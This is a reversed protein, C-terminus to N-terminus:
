RVYVLKFPQTKLNVIAYLVSGIVALKTNSIDYEDYFRGGEVGDYRPLELAFGKVETQPVGCEAADYFQAKLFIARLTADRSYSIRPFVAIRITVVSLDRPIEVGQSRPDQTFFWRLTKKHDDNPETETMAVALSHATGANCPARACGHACWLLSLLCFAVSGLM